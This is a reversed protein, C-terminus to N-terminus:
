VVVCVLRKPLSGARQDRGADAYVHPPLPLHCVRCDPSELGSVRPLEPMNLAACGARDQWPAFGFVPAPLVIPDAANPLRDRNHNPAADAQAMASTRHFSRVRDTIQTIILIERQRHKVTNKSQSRSVSAFVAQALSHSITAGKKMPLRTIMGRTGNTGM